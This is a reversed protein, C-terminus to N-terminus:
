SECSLIVIAVAHLETICAKGILVIITLFICYVSLFGVGALIQVERRVVGLCWFESTTLVRIFLHSVIVDLSPYVLSSSPAAIRGQGQFLHRFLFPSFCCLYLCSSCFGPKMGYTSPTESLTSWISFFYPTAMDMRGWVISLRRNTCGFSLTSGSSSIWLYQTLTTACSVCSVCTSQKLSYLIFVHFIYVICWRLLVRNAFVLLRLGGGVLGGECDM